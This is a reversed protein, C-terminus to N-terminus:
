APSNRRSSLGLVGLWASVFLWAAAPLPVATLALQYSGSQNHDGVFGFDAFGTVAFTASGDDAVNFALRSLLTTGDIDDNSAIFSGDSGFWGLVSDFDAATIEASMHEGPTLGTFTVFDIDPTANLFISLEYQGAMTHEGVFDADNFGTVKLSIGGNDNVRGFLASAADIGFPGGDDNYALLNGSADFAGLLTDVGSISNDIMAYFPTGATLGSVAYSNVGGELLTQNQYVSDPASDANGAALEGDVSLEGAALVTRSDFSNNPESETAAFASNVLLGYCTAAFLLKPFKPM